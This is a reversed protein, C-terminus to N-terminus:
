KQKKLFSNLFRLQLKNNLNFSKILKLRNLVEKIANANKIPDKKLTILIKKIAEEPNEDNGYIEKKIPKSIAPFYIKHARSSITSMLGSIENCILIILSNPPPEEFIKLLASQAENTLNQAGFIVATRKKSAVPTQYLFGQLSRIEDIGINGKENPYIISFDSLPRKTIEFLHNELFNATKKSFDLIEEIEGGFFIYAHSLKDEKVLGIFDDILNKYDM